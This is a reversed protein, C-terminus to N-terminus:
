SASSVRTATHDCSHVRQSLRLRGPVRAAITHASGHRRALRALLTARYPARSDRRVVRGDLLFDVHRTAPADTLSARWGHRVCRV